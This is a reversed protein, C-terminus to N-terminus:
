IENESRPCCLHVEKVHRLFNKRVVERQPESPCWRCVVKVSRAINRIGHAAAFHGTCDGYSIPMGCERGKDDRWGCPYSTNRDCVSRAKPRRKSTRPRTTVFRRGHYSTGSLSRGKICSMPDGLQLEHPSLPLPNPPPPLQPRPDVVQESNFKNEDFNGYDDVGGDTTYDDPIHTAHSRFLHTKHDSLTHSPHDGLAQAAHNDLTGSAHLEMKSGTDFGHFGPLGVPRVYHLNFPFLYGLHEQPSCSSKQNPM